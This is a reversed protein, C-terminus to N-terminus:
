VYFVEEEEEEEVKEGEGREKRRGKRGENSSTTKKNQSYVRHALDRRPIGLVTIAKHLVKGDGVVLKKFV